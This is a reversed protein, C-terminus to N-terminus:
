LSDFRNRTAARAYRRKRRCALLAGVAFLIASAPEPVATARRSRGDDNRWLDDELDRYDRADVVGNGNGDAALSTMSGLTDRWVTYDAADVIGDHNYDGAADPLFLVYTYGDGLDTVEVNSAFNWSIQGADHLSSIEAADNGAWRLVWDDASNVADFSLVLLSTADISLVSGDFDFSLGTSQGTSQIVSVTGGNAISVNGALSLPTNIDLTSGAGNVSISHTLSDAAEVSFTSGNAM